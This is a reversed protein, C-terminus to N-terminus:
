VPQRSTSQSAFWGGLDFCLRSRKSRPPMEQSQFASTASHPQFLFLAVKDRKNRLYLCLRSTAAQCSNKQIQSSVDISKICHSELLKQSVTTSARKIILMTLM